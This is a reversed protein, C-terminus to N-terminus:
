DFFRNKPLAMIFAIREQAEKLSSHSSTKVKNVRKRIRWVEYSESVFDEKCNCDKFCQCGNFHTIGVEHWLQYEPMEELMTKKTKM